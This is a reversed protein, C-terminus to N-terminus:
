VENLIFQILDQLKHTETVEIFSNRDRTLALWNSIVKIEDLEKQTYTHKVFKNISFFLYEITDSIEKILLDSVHDLPKPILYTKVLKGNQIFFVERKISSDCKIILKKNNIVSTIVKQFSLIKELEIIQDRVEAAKEFELERSLDNMKIKLLNLYSLNTDNIIYSHVKEVEKYYNEKDINLICPASCQNLNYYMCISNHLSPKIEKYKCKRLKFNNHIEKAINSATVNKSFPGYYYAGDNEIQYVKELRPFQNTVDLKLFTPKRFNKLATNFRPKHDKILKSEFILASLESNTVIFDLKRINSILKRIKSPMESNYRFYSSLRERLNKAKGIYLVEESASKMIYVGPAQPIDKLNLNLRKLTQSPNDKTYIPKHQFRLLDLLRNINLENNLKNIFYTLIEYTTFADNFSRHFKKNNIGLFAAINALSKSKLNTLLRRALKCTCLTPVQFQISNDIRQFEAKLFKYDFSVNHGVFILNSYNSHSFFNIVDEAVETFTPMKVVDENTIGTLATIENPIHRLPNVLTTYKKSIKYNEVKLLSLEIIRNNFPNIGTTEVDCVIFTCEDLLPNNYLKNNM